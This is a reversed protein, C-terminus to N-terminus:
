SYQSGKGLKVLITNNLDQDLEQDHEPGPLRLPLLLVPGGPGAEMTPSLPTDRTQVPSHALHTEEGTSYM